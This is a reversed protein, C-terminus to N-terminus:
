VCPSSTVRQGEGEERRVAYVRCTKGDYEADKEHQMGNKQAVRISAANGPDIISILCPVPLHTFGWDRCACAAETALGLGWYAHALKYGVEM